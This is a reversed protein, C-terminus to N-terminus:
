TGDRAATLSLIFPDTVGSGVPAWTTGRDVTRFIGRGFSGDYVTGKGAMTLAQVSAASQDFPGPAAAGGSAPAQGQPHPAGAPPPGEAAGSSILCGWLLGSCIMIRM